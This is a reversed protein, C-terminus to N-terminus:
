EMRFCQLWATMLLRTNWLRSCRRTVTSNCHRMHWRIFPRICSRHIHQLVKRSLLFPTPVPILYTTLHGWLRGLQVTWKVEAAGAPPDVVRARSDWRRGHLRHPTPSGRKDLDSEQDNEGFSTGEVMYSFETILQSSVVHAEEKRTQHARTLAQQLPVMSARAKRTTALPRSSPLRRYYELLMKRHFRLWLCIRNGLNVYRRSVRGQLEPLMEEGGKAKKQM